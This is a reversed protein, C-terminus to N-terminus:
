PLKIATVQGGQGGESSRVVLVHKSFAPLARYVAAGTQPVSYKSQIDIKDATIKALQLTGDISVMLLQEGVAVLHTTGPLPLEAALALSEKDLLRLTVNPFDERGHPAVISTGIMVPSNYQSAVLETEALEITLRGGRLQVLKTGVNYSATFFFKNKGLALPTAANVTPGKAGFDIESLVDGTAVDVLVTKLRTVVMAAPKGAVQVEVPSAYSADYDTAQWIVKGSSLSVGM